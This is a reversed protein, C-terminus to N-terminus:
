AIALNRLSYERIVKSSSYFMFNVSLIHIFQLWFDLKMSGGRQFSVHHLADFLLANAPPSDDSDSPTGHCRNGHYNDHCKGKQSRGEVSFRKTTLLWEAMGTTSLIGKGTTSSTWFVVMKAFLVM